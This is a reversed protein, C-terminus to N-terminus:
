QNTTESYESFPNQQIEDFINALIDNLFKDHDTGFKSSLQKLKEINKSTIKVLSVPEKDSTSLYSLCADRILSSRNGATKKNHLDILAIVEDTLRVSVIRSM